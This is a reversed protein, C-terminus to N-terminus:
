GGLIWWLVVALGTAFVLAYTQLNGSQLLRMTQGLVDTGGRLLGVCFGQLVWREVGAVFMAWAEHLGIVTAEYL